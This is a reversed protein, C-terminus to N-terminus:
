TLALDSSDSSDGNSPPQRYETGNGTGNGGIDVILESPPAGLQTEDPRVHVTTLGRSWM